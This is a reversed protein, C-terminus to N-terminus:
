YNNPYYVFESTDKNWFEISEFDKPSKDRLWNYLHKIILRVEDDSFKDANFVQKVKRLISVEKKGDLCINKDTMSFWGISESYKNFLNHVSGDYDSRMVTFPPNLELQFITYLVQTEKNM